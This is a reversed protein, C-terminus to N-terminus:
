PTMDRACFPSMTFTKLIFFILSLLSLTHVNPVMYNGTLTTIAIWVQQQITELLGLSGLLTCGTIYLLVIDTYPTCSCQCSQTLIWMIPAIQLTMLHSYIAASTSSLVPKCPGGCTPKGCIHANHGPESLSQSQKQCHSSCSGKAQVRAMSLRFTFAPM